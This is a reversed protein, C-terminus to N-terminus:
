ARSGELCVTCRPGPAPDKWDIDPLVDYKTENGITGHDHFPFAGREEDYAHVLTGPDDSRPRGHQDDSTEKAIKLTTM